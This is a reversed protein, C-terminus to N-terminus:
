ISEEQIRISGNPDVEVNIDSKHQVWEHIEHNAKKIGRKILHRCLFGTTIVSAVKIRRIRRRKQIQKKIQLKELRKKTNRRRKISEWAKKTMRRKTMKVLDM